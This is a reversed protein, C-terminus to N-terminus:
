ASMRDIDVAVLRSVGAEQMTVGVLSDAMEMSLKNHTIFIFQVNDAMSRLMQAYRLVNADDLPADVEDLLCFPAPNLRFIAFVLAIAALAKEGGSLLDINSPRKGPPRAMMAVGTNLLDDGTMQLHASGGGFLVPFLEALGASIKDFCKKFREKCERDIKGIAQELTGLASNVDALQEDLHSCDALARELDRGAVLNVEGLRQIRQALRQLNQEVEDQKQGPELDAAAQEIGIDADLKAYEDSQSRQMTQWQAREVEADRVRGRQADIQRDIDAGQMMAQQRKQDHGAIAAQIAQMKKDLQLREAVLGDLEAKIAKEDREDGPKQEQEMRAQLEVRRRRLGQLREKITNSDGTLTRGQLELEHRGAALRELEARCQRALAAAREQEEQMKRRTSADEAAAAEARELDQAAHEMQKQLAAHEARAAQLAEARLASDRVRSQLLQDDMQMQALGRAARALAARASEHLRAALADLGECAALLRAHEEMDDAQAALAADMDQLAKGQSIPGDGASRQWRLWNRGVLIGDRTVLMAGPPLSKRAALAADLNDAVFTHHLMQPIFDGRIHQALCPLSHEAARGKGGEVLHLDGQELSACQGALAELDDVVWAGSLDGLAADLAAQWGDDVRLNRWLRREEGLGNRRCWDEPAASKRSEDLLAQLSSRRGEMRYRRRRADDALASIGSRLQRLPMAAADGREKCEQLRRELAQLSARATALQQLQQQLNKADDSDHEGTKKRASEVREAAAALSQQLHEKRARAAALAAADGRYQELRKQAKELGADADQCKREAAAREDALAASRLRAEDMSEALAAERKEYQAIQAALEEMEARTRAQAQQQQEQQRRSKKIGNELTQIRFGLHYIQGQVENLEDKLTQIADAEAETRAQCAALESQLRALTAEHKQVLSDQGAADAAYDRWRIALLQRGAAREQEKYKRYRKEAAAQSRLRKLHEEMDARQDGLRELNERTRRIRQETERRREKYHSIDAAEEIYARLQEPRATALESVLGQGILAYSRPGLGTGHFADTIDRRRCRSGNLRYESQEDRGLTRRVSLESYQALAGGLRGDSNDFVLEVSAQGLPARSRSGNFIVDDMAKGRLQQASSEGLVWRVADMINSKGCGNPGVVACLNGPFSLNIPDVFSKFGAIKISKLRM